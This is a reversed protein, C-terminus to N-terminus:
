GALIYQSILLKGTLWFQGWVFNGKQPEKNLKGSDTVVDIEGGYTDVLMWHFRNNTFSNTKIQAEKVEGIFIALAETTARETKDPNFLGNPIFSKSAMNSYNEAKEKFEKEDKFIEIKHAFATLQIETTLPLKTKPLTQANPLDFVFPYLANRKETDDRSYADCIFYGDLESPEKKHKSSLSVIRKSKGQFYPNAGILDKRANAQIWLEAGSPDSYQFYAGGEVQIRVCKRIIKQCLTVFDETNNVEFGINSFHSM